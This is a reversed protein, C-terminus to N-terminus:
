FPSLVLTHAGISTSEYTRARLYFSVLIGLFAVGIAFSGIKLLSFFNRFMIFSIYILNISQDEESSLILKPFSIRIDSYYTIVFDKIFSDM